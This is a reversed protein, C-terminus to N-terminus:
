HVFVPRVSPSISMVARGSRSRLRRRSTRVVGSSRANISRATAADPIFRVLKTTVFRVTAARRTSASLDSNVNPGSACCAQSSILRRGARSRGPSLFNICRGEGNSSHVAGSVSGALRPVRFDRHGPAGGNPGGGGGGGNTRLTNPWARAPAPHSPPDSWPVQTHERRDPRESRHSAQPRNLHKANPLMYRRHSLDRIKRGDRHASRAEGRAPVPGTAEVSM